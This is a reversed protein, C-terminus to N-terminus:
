PRVVPETEVRVLKGDDYVWASQDRCIVYAPKGHFDGTESDVVGGREACQVIYDRAWRASDHTDSGSDPTDGCGSAALALAAAVLLIARRM